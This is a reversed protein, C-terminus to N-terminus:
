EYLYYSLAEVTQFGTKKYLRLATDNLSSVQLTVPKKEKSLLALIGLLFDTGFGRGRCNEKIQFAYLYLSATSPLLACTGILMEKLFAAYLGPTKQEKIHLLPHYDQDAERWQRAMTYESYWYQAGVAKMVAMASPTKEDILFCFDAGCNKTKEYHEVYDLAMDMLDSFIGTRRHGPHVFATYECLDEQPFFLFSFGLLQSNDYYLFYDLGDETPATLKLPETQRCLELLEKMEAKQRSSLSNIHMRKM